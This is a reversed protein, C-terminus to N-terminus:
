SQNDHAALVPDSPRALEHYLTDREVPIRGAERIFEEIQRRTMGKGAVGGAALTIREDIVTGDLDDAGFHLAVQAIKQTLMIWYAKIHAFNDLMLRSVAITKLDDFGDTMGMHGEFPTNEPHFALPILCDFGGTEDQLARLQVLHDVREEFSEVHGYLMTANSRLGKEHVIRAVELWRQGTMKNHAIIHRARPAFIEAGGGPCSDLGAEILIDLTDAVSKKALHALWDIEVMTFAKLHVQPFAQKLSRLIEVYVEFKWLPHLGGVIHFEKVDPSYDRRAVEVAQQPTYAWTGPANPTDQYACLECGVFCVNTPNLHRNVNYYTLEGHRRERVRNAMSGVRVFDSSCFLAVGDEFTLREGAEVKAEISDLDVGSHPRKAPRQRPVDTRPKRAM